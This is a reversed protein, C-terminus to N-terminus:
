RAKVGFLFRTLRTRRIVLEYALLVGTLCSIVLLALKLWLSIDWSVIFYGTAVIVPQHLIYMPYVARNLYHLRSSYVNLYRMCYGIVTLMISWIFLSNLVAFVTLRYGKEEPLDIRWFYSIILWLSVLLTLGLYWRRYNLCNAWFNKVRGLLFGLLYFSISACFNWWDEILNGQEPWDPYLFLYYAVFPMACLFPSWAPRMIREAIPYLRDFWKIKSSAFVPLLLLTFVFLYAVFWMHSWTLSGDPYPLFEWVSPWFQWYGPQIRGDQLWEFYVQVPTIFFMAFALPILLRHTREWTFRGVSRKKLSFRVGVGSIFFLLPLRWQHLWIVIRDIWESSTPNKIEWNFSTFPVLCHFLILSGFALVRIWDIYHLRQETSNM